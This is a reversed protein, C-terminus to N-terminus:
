KLREILKVIIQQHTKMHKIGLLGHLLLAVSPLLADSGTEKLQNDTLTKEIYDALGNVVEQDANEDEAFARLNAVLDAYSLSHDTYKFLNDVFDSM